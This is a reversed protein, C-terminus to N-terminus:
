PQNQTPYCPFCKRKPFYNHSVLHLNMTMQFQELNTIQNIYLKKNYQLDSILQAFFDWRHITKHQLSQSVSQSASQNAPQSAPQSVQQSAPDWYCEGEEDHLDGRPLCRATFISQNISPRESQYSEHESWFFDM